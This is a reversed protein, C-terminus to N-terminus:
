RDHVELVSRVKEIAIHRRRGVDRNTTEVARADALAQDLDAALRSRDNGLAQIQGALAEERRDSDRRHEVAAELADIAASLRRTAAEFASHDTMAGFNENKRL